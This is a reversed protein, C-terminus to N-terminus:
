PSVLNELLRTTNEAGNLDLSVRGREQSREMEEKMCAALSEVELTEVVRLVGLSELRRARLAQERNQSFPHVIAKLGVSLIDMCTNYGAMSVSLDARALEGLFDLSFPHVSIRIDQSAMQFLLDRHLPETFPGLFVRLRLNSFPLSRFAQISSAMLDYGVKGGGSSLVIVRVGEQKKVRPARRVVFGTYHTPISIRATQFFTDELRVLAPDSHILLLHYYPNLTGLVREEYTAQDGKEVLIDRLSCVVRARFRGGATEELVPMIEFAFRKRGFPFLETVFVDPDFERFTEWLIRSRKHRIEELPGNRVEMTKFQADMMLPPLFVRQVHSPVRFGSVPEGGEVFLVKHRHLGQAIEMSRFFHGIGLVHQCYIMVKM